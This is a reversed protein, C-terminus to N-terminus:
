PGRCSGECCDDPDSLDVCIGNGGDPEDCWGDGAWPCPDAPPGADKNGAVKRVGGVTIPTAWAEADQQPLAPNLIIVLYGDVHTLNTLADVSTLGANAEFSLDAEIHELAALDALDALAPNNRLTLSRLTTLGSLGSLGSIQDADITVDGLTTLAPFPGLDVIANNYVLLGDITALSTLASLDLLWTKGTLALRGVSELAALATLDALANNSHFSLDGDVTTLSELGLTDTLSHNERLVLAELHEAGTLLSLDTLATKDIFIDHAEHWAVSLEATTLQPLERLVVVVPEGGPDGISTLAALGALDSIELHDLTLRTDVRQLGRLGELDTLAPSYGISLGGVRTINHLGELSTLAPMDWVSLGGPLETLDNFITLDTVGLDSLGLGGVSELNELGALSTLVVSPHTKGSIILNGAVTRLESLPTLDTIPGRIELDGPIDTCGALAGLEAPDEILVDGTPCAPAGTTTPAPDTTTSSTDTTTSSTTTDPDPPTGTDTPAATDDGTSTDDTTTIPPDSSSSAHPNCALALAAIM